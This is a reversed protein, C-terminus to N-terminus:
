AIFLILWMFQHYLNMWVNKGWFFFFFFLEDLCVTLFLTYTYIVWFIFTVFDWYINQKKKRQFGGWFFVSLTQQTSSIYITLFPMLLIQPHHSKPQKLWRFVCSYHLSLFLYVYCFLVSNASGIWFIGLKFM